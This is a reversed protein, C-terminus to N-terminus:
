ILPWCPVLIEAWCLTLLKKDYGWLCVVPKLTSFGFILMKSTEAKWLMWVHVALDWEDTLFPNHWGFIFIEGNQLKCTVQKNCGTQCSSLASAECTSKRQPWCSPPCICQVPLHARSDVRGMLADEHSHFHWCQLCKAEWWLGWCSSELFGTGLVESCDKSLAFIVQFKVATLLAWHLYEQDLCLHRNDLHSSFCGLWRCSLLDLDPLKLEWCCLSEMCKCPM